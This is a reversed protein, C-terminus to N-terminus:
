NPERWGTSTGPWNSTTGGLRLVKCKGKNFQTLNGDAWKELRDLHKQIAAHGEPMDAGGGLKTDDAFKSLTCEAGGDLDNMFFSFLIPGLISEQPVGNTVSRWHCNM